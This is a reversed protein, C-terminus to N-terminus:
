CIFKKDTIIGMEEEDLAATTILLVAEMDTHFGRVLASSLLSGFNIHIEKPLRNTTNYERNVHTDVLWKLAKVSEPNIDNIRGEEYWAAKRKTDTSFYSEFKIPVTSTVQIIPASDSAESAKRPTDSVIIKPKRLFNDTERQKPAEKIAPPTVQEEEQPETDSAVHPSNWGNNESQDVHQEIQLVRAKKSDSDSTDSSEDSSHKEAEERIERRSPAKEWTQAPLDKGQKIRKGTQRPMQYEEKEQSFVGIEDEQSSAPLKAKALKRKVRPQIVVEEESSFVGTEGLSTPLEVQEMKDRLRPRTDVEIEESAAQRKKSRGERLPALM